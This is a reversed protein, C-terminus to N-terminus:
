VISSMPFAAKSLLPSSPLTLPRLSYPNPLISLVFRARAPPAAEKGTVTRIIGFPCAPGVTTTCMAECFLLEREENRLNDEGRWANRTEQGMNRCNYSEVVIIEKGTTLVMMIKDM